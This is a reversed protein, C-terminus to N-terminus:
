EGATRSLTLPIAAPGQTWEGVAENGSVDGAFAAGISLIAVTLRKDDAYGVTSLPMGDIGQAPVDLYGASGGGELDEFRIAIDLSGNPTTLTGSWTGRLEDMEETTLNLSAVTPTFEGRTMNLPLPQPQGQSWTGTMADGEVAAQYEGRIRPVRFSLAGDTFEINSIEIGRAGQDPSDISGALGGNADPELNFVITLEGVPAALKGVWQGSLLAIDAASLVPAEYPVLVLPISTGQQRWEGTLTDGDFRGEYAGSLSEVTLSLLSSEFSVTSAPVDKVGGPDPSTVVASYAGDPGRTLVFHIELETGPAAELSGAWTGSIDQQARAAGSVILLLAICCYSPLFNRM